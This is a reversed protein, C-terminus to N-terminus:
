LRNKEDAMRGRPSVAQRKKLPLEADPRLSKEKKWATEIFLGFLIGWLGAWFLPTYIGLPSFSVPAKVGFATSLGLEFLLHSCLVVALGGIVGATFCIAVQQTLTLGNEM